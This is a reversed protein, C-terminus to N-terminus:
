GGGPRARRHIMRWSTKRPLGRRHFYDGSEPPEVFGAFTTVNKGKPGSSVSFRLFFELEVVVHALMRFRAQAPVLRAPVALPNRRGTWDTFDNEPFRDDRSCAMCFTRLQSLSVSTWRMSSRALSTAMGLM